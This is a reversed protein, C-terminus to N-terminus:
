DDTGSTFTLNLTVPQKEIAKLCDADWGEFWFYVSIKMKTQIGDMCGLYNDLHERKNWIQRNSEILELDNRISANYLSQEFIGRSTLSYYNPRVILLENIATNYQKELCGGLNFVGEEYSPMQSGGQFIKTFLPSEDSYNSNVNIPEYVSLGFRVANKSNVSYMQPIEKLISYPSDSPLDGYPNINGFIGRSISGILTEDM